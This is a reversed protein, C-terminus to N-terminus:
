VYLLEVINLWVRLASLDETGKEGGSEGHSELRKEGDDGNNCRELARVTRMKIHRPRMTDCLLSM